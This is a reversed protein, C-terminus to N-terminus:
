SCDLREQYIWQSTNQWAACSRGNAYHNSQNLTVELRLSLIGESIHDNGLYMCKGTM